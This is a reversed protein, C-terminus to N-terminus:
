RSVRRSACENRGLQSTLQIVRGEFLVRTGPNWPGDWDPRAAPVNWTLYPHYQYHTCIPVTTAGAFETRVVAGVANKARATQLHGWATFLIFGAQFALLAGVWRRRELAMALAIAAPVILLHGWFAHHQAGQRFGLMMAVGPAAALGLLARKPHLVGAGLALLTLPGLGYALFGAQKAIWEWATFESGGARWKMQWMLERMGGTADILHWAVFAFTLAAAVMAPWQRRWLVLLAAAIVGDWSSLVLLVVVPVAWRVPLDRDLLAVFLPAAATLTILTPGDDLMFGSAAVAAMAMLAVDPAFHRRLLRDLLFLTAGALGLALLRAWGEWGGLAVPGLMLWVPLPPHHAYIGNGTTGPYPAILAGRKSDVGPKLINRAGLGWIAPNLGDEATGYPDGVLPLNFLLPTLCM